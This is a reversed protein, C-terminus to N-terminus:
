ILLESAGAAIALPGIEKMRVKTCGKRWKLIYFYVNCALLIFFAFFVTGITSVLASCIIKLSRQLLVQCAQALYDKLILEM